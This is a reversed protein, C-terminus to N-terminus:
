KYNAVADYRLLDGLAFLRIWDDVADDDEHQLLGQSLPNLTDLGRFIARNKPRSFYKKAAANELASRQPIM